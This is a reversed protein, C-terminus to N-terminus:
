MRKGQVIQKLTDELEPHEFQYGHKLIKEPIMRVSSMMTETVEGLIIKLMFVPAPMFAPRKLVKGLMKAFDKYRVPNPASCNIPGQVDGHNLAYKFIGALDDIHIWPFWHLGDGLPGGLGLKFPLLMKEMAGGNKGLIIGFRALIVRTGKEESKLAENEWDVCLGALYSDGSSTEESLVDDGRSGYFGSASTNILIKNNNEPLADVINRTTYIRSEYMQTKYNDNWRKFINKGALNIIVDSDTLYNQWEGTKSTDASVYTLREHSIERFEPRTGIATVDNGENLFIGTIYQGVFGTGGTILIKM